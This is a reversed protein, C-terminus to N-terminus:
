PTHTPSSYSSKRDMRHVQKEQIGRAVVVVVLLKNDGKVESKLVCAQPMGAVCPREGFSPELFFLFVNGLFGGSFTM